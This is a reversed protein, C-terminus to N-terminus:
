PKPPNEHGRGTVTQAHAWPPPRSLSLLPSSLSLSLSPTLFPSLSLPSFFTPPSLSFSLSLSFPSPPSFSILTTAASYARKHPTPRAHDVRTRMCARERGAGKRGKQEGGKKKSERGGGGGGRRAEKNRTGHEREILRHDGASACTHARVCVCVCVCVGKM